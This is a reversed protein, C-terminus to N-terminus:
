PTLVIKHILPITPGCANYEDVAINYAVPNNSGVTVSNMQATATAECAISPDVTTPTGITPAPVHITVTHGKGDNFTVSAKGSNGGGCASLALVAVAGTIIRKM